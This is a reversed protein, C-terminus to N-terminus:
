PLLHSKNGSWMVVLEDRARTSAVYLLSRERLQQDARDGETLDALANGSPVSDESIEFLIVKKFEMGKARFMTMVNPSSSVNINRDILTVNINRDRMAAVVNQGLSNTRVLIGIEGYNDLESEWQRLLKALAEYEESKTAFHMLRPKPGSRASIYNHTEAVNELDEWTAGDLMRMAYDLNEATTRYNLRLRRARGRIEIGFRSLPFRQGYIRQHSDEAIFLDDPGQPALARLLKWHAPSLDQGEDVIVHDAAYIGNEARSDLIVAALCLSEAFSFTHSVAAEARYSEIIKWLRMRKTRNLATGRGARPVRIYGALTTVSNGLIVTEYEQELFTPTVLEPELGHNPVKGVADSWVRNNHPPTHRADVDHFIGLVQSVAYQREERTAERWIQAAIADPGKILVGPQGLDSVIRIRHDLLALQHHLSDALTRNFTTLIIRVSLKSKDYLFKTRHLAVVTKGTGAGGSVRYPGKSKIGHPDEPDNIRVYKRQEPHLFTRWDDFSGNQIIQELEAASSVQAFQAQTSHQEFSKIVAKDTSPQKDSADTEIHSQVELRLEEVVEAVEKGSQLSLLALGQWVAGSEVVSNFEVSSKSALARTTLEPDIGIERQLQEPTLGAAVLQNTFSEQVTEVVVESPAGYTAPAEAPAGSTPEVFTETQPSSPEPFSAEHNSWEAEELVQNAQQNILELVGSVPNVYLIKTKAIRIAEDHEYAGAFVYSPEGEGTIKFLVARIGHDVRGTRARPDNAGVMPEIHLGPLSDDEMLKEIFSFVKKRLNPETRNSNKVMIVNSM